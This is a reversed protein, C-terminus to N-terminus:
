KKPPVPASGGLLSTWFSTLKEPDAAGGAAASLPRAAAAAAAAGAGVSVSPRAQPGAAAAAAAAAAPAGLNVSQRVTHAAAAAAAAATATSAGLVSPRAQPSLAPPAAAAAAAAPPPALKSLEALWESEPELTELPEQQRAGRGGERAGQPPPLVKAYPLDDSWGAVGGGMLADVLELSDWGWPIYVAGSVQADPACSFASPYLRHLVLRQLAACNDGTRASAYVLAAGRELCLRRLRRQVFLERRQREMGGGSEREAGGAADLKCGVVVARADGRVGELAALWAEAAPVAEWPRTLDVAVLALAPAAVGAAAPPPPAHQTSATVATLIDVFRADSCSWVSVRPPSDSFASGSSSQAAADRAEFYDYALVPHFDPPPEEGTADQKRPAAGTLREVLATKGSGRPGVCIIVSDPPREATAAERLLADWSGGATDSTSAEVATM